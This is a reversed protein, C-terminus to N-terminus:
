VDFKAGQALPLRASYNVTSTQRRMYSKWAGPGSERGGGTEKEGGFEAGSLGINVDAIGRDSGTASLFARGRAPQAHLHVLFPGAARRESPAIAEEFM